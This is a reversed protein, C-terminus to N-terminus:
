CYDQNSRIKPVKGPVGNIQTVTLIYSCLYLTFILILASADHQLSVKLLLLLIKWHVSCKDWSYNNFAFTSVRWIMCNRLGCLIGIFIVNILM